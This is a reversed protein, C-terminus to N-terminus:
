HILHFIKFEALLPELVQKITGGYDNYDCEVWATALGHAVFDFYQAHGNPFTVKLLEENWAEIPQIDDPGSGEHHIIKQVLTCNARLLAEVTIILRKGM